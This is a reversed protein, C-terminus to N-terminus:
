FYWFIADSVTLAPAGLNHNKNLFLKSLNIWYM